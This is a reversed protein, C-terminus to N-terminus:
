LRTKVAVCLLQQDQLDKWEIQFSLSGSLSGDMPYTSITNLQGVSIPCGLPVVGCLDEITPSLPIFNYTASYKATGGAVVSPVNMSLSLTSNEGRVPPDPSFKMSLLKFLSAGNSCDTVSADVLYAALILLINM